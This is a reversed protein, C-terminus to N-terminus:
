IIKYRENNVIVSLNNVCQHCDKELIEEEHTMSLDEYRDKYKQLERNEKQLERVKDISGNQM